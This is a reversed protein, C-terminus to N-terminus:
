VGGATHTVLLTFKPASFLKQLPRPASLGLGASEATCLIRRPHGLPRVKLTMTWPTPHGGSPSPSTSPFVGLGAPQTPLTSTPINLNRHPATDISLNSSAMVARPPAKYHALRDSSLHSLLVSRHFPASTDRFTRFLTLSLFRPSFRDLALFPAFLPRPPAAITQYHHYITSSHICVGGPFCSLVTSSSTSLSFLHRRLGLTLKM